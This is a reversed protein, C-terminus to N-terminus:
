SGGLDMSRAVFNFGVGPSPRTRRELHAQLVDGTTSVPRLADFCQRKDPLAIVLRGGPKLIADCDLLFGLLDPVHEAVHSAIIWDYRSRVGIVDPLPRGDSVYDVDEIATEDVDPSQRYRTRLTETDAHDLTEVHWGDRKPAIPAHLPGIELGLGGRELWSRLIDERNV